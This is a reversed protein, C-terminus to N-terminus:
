SGKFTAERKEVFATVGEMADETAFTVQFGEQEIAL